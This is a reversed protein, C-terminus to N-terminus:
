EGGKQPNPQEESSPPQQPRQGGNRNPMGEGNRNNPPMITPEEGPLLVNMGDNVLKHGNIILQDGIQLDGKIATQETQSNIIEVEKESAKGEEVTYVFYKDAKQLIASTPVILEDEVLVDEFLLQVISGSTIGDIPNGLELEVDYLGNDNTSTSVYTVNAVLTQDTNNTLVKVEQGIPLLPKQEHTIQSDIKLNSYNSVTLLPTQTSLKDGVQYNIESVEGSIPSVIPSDNVNEQADQVKLEAKQINLNAQEIAVASKELDKEASELDIKAQEYSTSDKQQDGELSLQGKEYALRAEEEQQLSQEYENRTIAGENYLREKKEVTEKAEKWRNELQELDLQSQTTNGEEGESWQNYEAEVEEYTLKAKDLRQQSQEKSIQANQLQQKENQLAVQADLLATQVDSTDVTALVQGAQVTDGKTVELAVLESSVESIINAYQDTIVDGYIQQSIVLNGKKIDAVEVSVSQQMMGGGPRGQMQGQTANSSCGTIVISLILISLYQKKM